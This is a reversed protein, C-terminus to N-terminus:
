DVRKQVHYSIFSDNYPSMYKGQINTHTCYLQFQVQIQIATSTIPPTAVCILLIENASLYLVAGNLSKAVFDYLM